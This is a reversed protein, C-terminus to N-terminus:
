LDCLCTALCICSCLMFLMHFRKFRFSRFKVQDFYRALCVNKRLKLADSIIAVYEGASIQRGSESADYGTDFFRRAQHVEDNSTREDNILGALKLSNCRM